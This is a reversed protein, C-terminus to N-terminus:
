KSQNSQYQRAKASYPRARATVAVVRKQELGGGGGEGGGREELLREGRLEEFLQSGIVIAQWDRIAGWRQLKCASLDAPIWQPSLSLKEILLM